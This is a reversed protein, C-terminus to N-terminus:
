RPLGHEDYLEDELQKGTVGEPLRVDGYMRDMEVFHADIEEPTPLQEGGARELIDLAKEIVGVKTAVGLRRQLRVIREELDPRKTLNIAM